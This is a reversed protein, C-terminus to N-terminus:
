LAMARKASGFIWNFIPRGDPRWLAVQGTGIRLQWYSPYTGVIFLLASTFGPGQKWENRVKM